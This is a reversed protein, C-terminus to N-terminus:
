DWLVFSTHAGSFKASGNRTMILRPSIHSCPIFSIFVHCYLAFAAKLHFTGLM